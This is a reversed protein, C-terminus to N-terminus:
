GKAAFELVLEGESFNYNIIPMNLPIRKFYAKNKGIAKIEISTELRAISVDKLSKVGPLKIEYIVRNSLRRMNTKPEQKKLQSFRKAEGESFQGPLKKRVKKQPSNVRVKPPSNGSSSISISIGNNKIRSDKPNYSENLQKTLNKMLSNFINDLGMPMQFANEMAIDDRGLMGWENETDNFDRDGYGCYPCFRYKSSIKKGCKACRKKLM